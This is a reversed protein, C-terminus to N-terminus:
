MGCSVGAETNDVIGGIDQKHGNGPRGVEVIETPAGGDARARQVCGYVTMCSKSKPVM